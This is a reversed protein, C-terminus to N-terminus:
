FLTRRQQGKDRENKLATFCSCTCIGGECIHLLPRKLVTEYYHFTAAGKKNCKYIYM